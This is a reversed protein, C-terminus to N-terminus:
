STSLSINIFTDNIPFSKPKFFEEREVSYKDWCIFGREECLDCSNKKFDEFNQFYGFVFYAFFAVILIQIVFNRWFVKDFKM